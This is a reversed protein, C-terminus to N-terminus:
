GLRDVVADVEGLEAVYGALRTGHLQTVFRRDATLCVGKLQMAAAVYLCDYVPHDVELAVALAQEMLPPTPVLRLPSTRLEAIIAAAADASLEGRRVKKWAINAVETLMFDPAVLRVFVPKLRGAEAHMAEAVFWKMVVSADVVIM